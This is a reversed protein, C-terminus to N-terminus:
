KKIDETTFIKVGAKELNIYEPDEIDRGGILVTKKPNYYNGDFFYSLESGNEGDITALPM